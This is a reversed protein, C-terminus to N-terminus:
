FHSEKILRKKLEKLATEMPGAKEPSYNYAQGKKTENEAESIKQTVRIQADLKELAISRNRHNVEGVTLPRMNRKQVRTILLFDKPAQM